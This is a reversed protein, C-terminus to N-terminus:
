NSGNSGLATMSEQTQRYVTLQQPRLMSALEYHYSVQAEAMRMDRTEPDAAFRVKLDEMTALMRLNLDKLKIYQGEDLKMKTAMTRTLQAARGNIGTPDNREPDSARAVLQVGIALGALLLLKKM